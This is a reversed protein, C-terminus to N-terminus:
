LELSTLGEKIAYKTLEAISDLRLRKKIQLRHAEITKHSLHLLAAMEKTSKGEALLQLVERERPSLLSGDHGKDVAYRDIYDRVLGGALSPSIYVKDEVVTRIASELEQFSSEKSLYGAAGSYLMETIYTRSTKMSLCLVKITPCTEKLRRTVEVGNLRSIAAELLIVDPKLEEALRCADLGNDAEGVVEYEGERELLARLGERVIRHGDALMIKVSM